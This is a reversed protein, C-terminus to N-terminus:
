DRLACTVALACDCSRMAIWHFRSSHIVEPSHSPRFPEGHLRELICELPSTKAFFLGNLLLLRDLYHFVVFLFIYVLSCSYDVVRNEIKHIMIFGLIEFSNAMTQNRNQLTAGQTSDETLFHACTSIM